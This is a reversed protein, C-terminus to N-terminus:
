NSNRGKALRYAYALDPDGDIGDGHAGAHLVTMQLFDHIKVTFDYKRAINAQECFSASKQPYIIDDSQPTCIDLGIIFLPASAQVIPRNRIAMEMEKANMTKM